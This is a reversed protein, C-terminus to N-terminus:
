AIQRNMLSRMQHGYEKDSLSIDICTIVQRAWTRSNNIISGWVIRVEWWRDYASGNKFALIIALAVGFM